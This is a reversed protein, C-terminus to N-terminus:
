KMEHKSINYIYGTKPSEFDITLKEDLEEETTYGEEEGYLRLWTNYANVSQGKITLFSTKTNIPRGDSSQSVVYYEKIIDVLIDHTYRKDDKGDYLEIIANPVTHYIKVVEELAKQWDNFMDAKGPQHPMRYYVVYNYRQEVNKRYREIEEKLNFVINYANSAYLNRLAHKEEDSMDNFLFSYRSDVIDDFLKIALARDSLTYM